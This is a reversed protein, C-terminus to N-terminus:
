KMKKSSNAAVHIVLMRLIIKVCCLVAFSVSCFAGNVAAEVCVEMGAILIWLVGAIIRCVCVPVCFKQM